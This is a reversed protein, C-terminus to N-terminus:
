EVVRPPPTKGPSLLLRLSRLVSERREPEIDQMVDIWEEIIARERRDQVDIVVQSETSTPPAPNDTLMLLFDTTTGLVRALAVVLELSPQKRSSEIQSLFSAGVDIGYGKLASQLAKQNMDRSDRLLRIRKGTTGFLETAMDTLTALFFAATVAPQICQDLALSM